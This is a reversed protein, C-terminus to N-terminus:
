LYEEPVEEHHVKMCELEFHLYGRDSFINLVNSYSVEIKYYDFGGM